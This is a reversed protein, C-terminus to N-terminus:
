LSVPKAHNLTHLRAQSAESILLLAVHEATTFYKGRRDDIHSVGRADGDRSSREEELERPLELLLSHQAIVGGAHLSGRSRNLLLHSLKVRHRRLIYTSM